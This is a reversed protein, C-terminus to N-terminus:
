DGSFSTKGICANTLKFDGPHYCNKLIRTEQIRSGVFETPKAALPLAVLLKHVSGTEATGQYYRGCVEGTRGDPLEAISGNMDGMVTRISPDARMQALKEELTVRSLKIVQIPCRCVLPTPDMGVHQSCGGEPLSIMQGLGRPYCFRM